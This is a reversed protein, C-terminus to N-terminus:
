KRRAMVLASGWEIDVINQDDRFNSDSEALEDFMQDMIDGNGGKSRAEQGPHAEKWGHYSSWTRVYEKCEGVTVTKEMFLTGEGTQKGNTGPEYEVRQLDEWQEAPPQIIRLKDQVYSRGPQPWYSGLKDPHKDYAYSMMIESAKPFDVFVHDKYGWFAVTGGPRVIRSMEPWLRSYDFWHAAQAAIACDIEGDGIFESAEASAQRFEVNRSQEKMAREQAQEVMGASPDTGVVSEFRKSMERTAIGTGCGLDLCFRKPGRHYALVANYLSTPYSPRFAAYSAHGFTSKAFTAM